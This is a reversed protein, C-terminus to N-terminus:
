QSRKKTLWLPGFHCIKVTFDDTIAVLKEPGLLTVSISLSQSLLRNHKQLWRRTLRLDQVQGVDMEVKEVGQAVGPAITAGGHAAVCVGGSQGVTGILSWIKIFTLTM